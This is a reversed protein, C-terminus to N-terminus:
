EPAWTSAWTTGFTTAFNRRARRAPLARHPALSFAISYNWFFLNRLTPTLGSGPSRARAEYLKQLILRSYTGTVPMCARNMGPVCGLPDDSSAGGSAGNM